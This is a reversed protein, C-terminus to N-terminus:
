AVAQKATARKKGQKAAVKKKGYKEALIQTWNSKKSAGKKTGARKKAELSGRWFSLKKKGTNKRAQLLKRDFSSSVQVRAASNVDMLNDLLADNIPAIGELINISQDDDRADVGALALCIAILLLLSLRPLSSM